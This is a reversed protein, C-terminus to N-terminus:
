GRKGLRLRPAEDPVAQTVAFSRDICESIVRARGSGNLRLRHVAAAEAPGTITVPVRYRALSM